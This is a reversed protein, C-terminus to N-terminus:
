KGSIIERMSFSNDVCKHCYGREKSTQRQYQLYNFFSFCLILGILFIKLEAFCEKAYNNHVQITTMEYHSLGISPVKAIIPNATHSKAMFPKNPADM